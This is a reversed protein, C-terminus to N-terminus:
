LISFPVTSVKSASVPCNMGSVCPERTCAVGFVRSEYEMGCALGGDSPCAHFGYGAMRNM